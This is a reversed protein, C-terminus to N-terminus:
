PDTIAVDTAGRSYQELAARANLLGAGQAADLAVFGGTTAGIPIVQPYNLGGTASWGPLRTASNMMVAKLVLPDTSLGEAEGYEQLLLATGSVLAASFSTGGLAEPGNFTTTFFDNTFPGGLDIEAEPITPLLLGSLPIGSVLPCIVDPDDADDGDPLPWNLVTGVGPAVLHVGARTSNVQTSTNYNWADIPGKSSFSPVVTTAYRETFRSVPFFPDSALIDDLTVTVPIINNFQNLTVTDLGTAGVSLVNFATAPSGVTKYGRFRTGPANDNDDGNPCEPSLQLMGENGAAAIVLTDTMSVLADNALATVGSATVDALPSGWSENIVTVRETITEGQSLISPDAMGFLAYHLGAGSVAFSGFSLEERAVAATVITADIAAGTFEEFNENYPSGAALGATATAHRSVGNIVPEDTGQWAIHGEVRPTLVVHESNPAFGEVIGIRKTEGTFGLAWLLDADIFEVLESASRASADIDVFVQVDLDYLQVEYQIVESNDGDGDGTVAFYYDGPSNAPIFFEIVEPQGLGGTDASQLLVREPGYYHLQLNIQRTADTLIDGPLCNGPGPAVFPIGAWDPYVFGQSDVMEPEGSDPNFVPPLLVETSDPYLGGTPTVEVRVRFGVPLDNIYTHFIDVDNGGYNNLSTIFPPASITQSPDLFQDSAVISLNSRQVTLPIPDETGPVFFPLTNPTPFESADSGNSGYLYHAARIDDIQPETIDENGSLSMLTGGDPCDWTPGLAIGIAQTFYHEWTRLFFEGEGPGFTFDASDLIINGCIGEDPTHINLLCTLNADPD